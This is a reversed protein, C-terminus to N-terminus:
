DGRDAFDLRVEHRNVGRNEFLQELVHHHFDTLAFVVTGYRYGRVVSSYKSVKLERDLDKKRREKNNPTRTTHSFHLGRFYKRELSGGEKVL